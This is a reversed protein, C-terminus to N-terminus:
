RNRSREDLQLRPLRSPEPPEGPVGLLALKDCLEDVTIISQAALPEPTELAIQHRNGWRQPFSRELFFAAARWDGQAAATQISHIMRVEAAARSRAMVVAFVLYPWEPGATKSYWLAKATLEDGLVDALDAGSSELRDLEAEGRLRWSHFTSESIGAYRAATGIYNGGSLLDSLKEIRELTLSSRPGPRARARLPEPSEQIAPWESM